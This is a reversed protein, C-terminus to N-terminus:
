LRYVAYSTSVHSSNLRTSKRDRGAAQIGRGDPHAHEHAGQRVGVRVERTHATRPIEAVCRREDPRRTEGGETRPRFVEQDRQNTQVATGAPLVHGRCPLRETPPFDVPDDARGGPHAAPGTTVRGSRRTPRDGRTRGGGPPDASDMIPTPAVGREREEPVLGGPDTHVLQVVSALQHRPLS